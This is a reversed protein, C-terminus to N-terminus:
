KKTMFDTYEAKQFFPKECTFALYVSKIVFFYNNAMWKTMLYFHSLKWNSKKNDLKIGLDTYKLKIRNDFYVQLHYLSM